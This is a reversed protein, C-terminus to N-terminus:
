RLQMGTLADRIASAKVDATPKKQTPADLLYDIDNAFESLVSEATLLSEQGHRNASTSVLAGGFESCLDQCLKYASIRMAISSHNGKVWNSVTKKAPLLWTNPGPWTQMISQLDPVSTLDAYSSVQEINAAILIVGQEKQRQKIALLREIADVNQPDCGLGFCYETPYAIVGGARLASVANNIKKASAM